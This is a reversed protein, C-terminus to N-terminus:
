CYLFWICSWESQLFVVVVEDKLIFDGCHLVVAARQDGPLVQHLSPEVALVGFLPVHGHAECRVPLVDCHPLSAEAREGVLKLEVGVALESGHNIWVGVRQLVVYPVPNM